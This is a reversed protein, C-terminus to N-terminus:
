TSLSEVYRSAALGAAAGDGAATALQRVSKTRCDGAAFVGKRSTLCDEGAILYGADDTDVFGRCIDTQPDQGIAIFLGSVPLTRVLSSKLDKVQIGSLENGEELLGTVTSSLLFRVNQKERLKAALAAEGRFEDRRHILTVNKCIGSLFLADTLATSGGGLVAAEKGEYFAGDCVACYSIGCGTLDEEKELELRRHSTGLALVLARGQVDGTDCSATIIDGDASFTNVWEVAGFTHYTVRTAVTLGDPFRYELILGDATPQRKEALLCQAFPAGDYTFCFPARSETILAEFFQQANHM